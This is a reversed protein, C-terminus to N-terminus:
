LRPPLRFAFLYIGYNEKTQTIKSEVVTATKEFFEEIAYRYANLRDGEASIRIEYHSALKHLTISCVGAQLRLKKEKLAIAITPCAAEKLLQEKGVGLALLPRATLDEWLEDITPAIAPAPNKDKKTM